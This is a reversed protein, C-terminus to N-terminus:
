LSLAAATVQVTFGVGIELRAENDLSFAPRVGVHLVPSSVIRGGWWPPPAPAPSAQLSLALALATAFM